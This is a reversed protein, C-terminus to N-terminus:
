ADKRNADKEGKMKAETAKLRDWSAECMRVWDDLLLSLSKEEPFAAVKPYRSVEVPEITAGKLWKSIKEAKREAFEKSYVFPGLFVKGTLKVTTKLRHM